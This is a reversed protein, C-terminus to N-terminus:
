GGFGGVEYNTGATGRVVEVSNTVPRPAPRPAPRREARPAAVRVVEEEMDRVYLYLHAFFELEPLPYMPNICLYPYRWPLRVGPATRM